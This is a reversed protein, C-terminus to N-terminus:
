LKLREKIREIIAALMNDKHSEFGSTMPHSRGINESPKGGGFEMLKVLYALSRQYLRGRGQMGRGTGKHQEPLSGRPGVRVVGALEDGRTMKVRKSWNDTDRLM